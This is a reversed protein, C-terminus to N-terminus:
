DEIPALCFKVRGLNAVNYVIVLPFNDKLYLEINTCLNTGKTFLLMYKLNFKSCSTSSKSLRIGRPSEEIIIKKSAFDGETTMILKNDKTEICVTNSCIALDRIYMQFDVSPINIVNDFDIDPIVITYSDIDLTKVINETSIKKQNNKVTINFRTRDNKDVSMIIVDSNKATKLVKFVSILSVGICFSEECYFEEFKDSDLTLHVIALSERDNKRQDMSIMKLGKTSFEINVDATIEKLSEFLTRIPNTQVSLLYLSYNDMNNQYIKM